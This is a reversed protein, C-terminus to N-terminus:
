RSKWFFALLKKWFNKRHARRLAEAQERALRRRARELQAIRVAIREQQERSLHM